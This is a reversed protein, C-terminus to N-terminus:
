LIHGFKHLYSHSGLYVFVHLLFILEIADCMCSYAYFVLCNLCTLLFFAIHQRGSNVKRSITNMMSM